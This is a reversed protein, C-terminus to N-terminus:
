IVEGWAQWTSHPKLLVQPVNLQLNLNNTLGIDFGQM